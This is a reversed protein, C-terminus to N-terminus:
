GGKQFGELAESVMRALADEVIDLHNMKRSRFAPIALLEKHSLDAEFLLTQYHRSQTKPWFSAREPLYKAVADTGRILQKTQVMEPLGFNSAVLLRQAFSTTAETKPSPTAPAGFGFSMLDDDDPLNQTVAPTSEVPAQTGALIEEIFKEKTVM